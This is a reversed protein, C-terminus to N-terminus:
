RVKSFRTSFMYTPEKGDTVVFYPAAMLNRTSRLVMMAICGVILIIAILVPRHPDKKYPFVTDVLLDLLGWGGRWHMANALTFIYTYFRSIVRERLWRGAKGEGWANTSRSYLRTKAISFTCQILIGLIFVEAIPFMKPYYDMLGLSSRWVGVVLPAVVFSAFVADGAGYGMEQCNCETRGESDGDKNIEEEKENKESKAAGIKEIRILRENPLLNDAGNPPMHTDIINEREDMLTREQRGRCYHVISIDDFLLTREYSSVGNM